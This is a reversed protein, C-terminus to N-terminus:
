PRRALVPGHALVPHCLPPSDLLSRLTSLSCFSPQSASDFTWRRAGVTLRFRLHRELTLEALERRHMWGWADKM